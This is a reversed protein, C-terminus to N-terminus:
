IHDSCRDPRRRVRLLTRSRDLERHNAGGVASAFLRRPTHARWEFLLRRAALLAAPSSRNEGRFRRYRSASRALAREVGLVCDRDRRAAVCARRLGCSWGFAFGASDRFVRRTSRTLRGGASVRPQQRPGRTIEDGPHRDRIAQADADNSERRKPRAGKIVNTYECFKGPTTQVLTQQHQRPRGQGQGHIRPMRPYSSTAIAGQQMGYLTSKREIGKTNNKFCKGLDEGPRRIM